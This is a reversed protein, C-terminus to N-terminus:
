PAVPRAVMLGDMHGLGAVYAHLDPSVTVGGSTSAHLLGIRGDPHRYALGTHAADLGGVTTALGLVDGPRLRPYVDRIAGHPLAYVAHRAALTDEMARVCAFLSDGGPRAAALRPYAARHTGMFDLTDPRRVGGLTLTLADVAGAEANDAMWDSFYHLRACYGPPADGRYRLAALRGVFSGFTTDRAVLTQGLALVTEVFTVCDFGDLRM